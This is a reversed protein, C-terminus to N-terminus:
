RIGEQAQIPTPNSLTISPISAQPKRYAGCVSLALETVPVAQGLDHVAGAARRRVQPGEAVPGGGRQGVRRM